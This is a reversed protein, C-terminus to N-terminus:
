LFTITNQKYLQLLFCFYILEKEYSYNLSVYTPMNDMTVEVSRGPKFNHQM